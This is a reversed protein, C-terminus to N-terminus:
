AKIYEVHYEVRGWEGPAFGVKCDLTFFFAGSRVRRPTIWYKEHNKATLVTAYVSLVMEPHPIDIRLVTEGMAMPGATFEVWGDHLGLSEVHDPNIGAGSFFKLTQANAFIPFAFILFLYKM